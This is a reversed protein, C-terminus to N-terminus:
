GEYAACFDVVHLNPGGDMQSIRLYQLRESMVMAIAEVMASDFCTKSRMPLRWIIGVPDVKVVEYCGQSDTLVVFSDLLVGPVGSVETEEVSIDLKLYRLIQETSDKLTM